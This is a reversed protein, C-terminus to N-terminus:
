FGQEISITVGEMLAAHKGGEDYKRIKKVAKIAM